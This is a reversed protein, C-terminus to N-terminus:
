LIRVIFSILWLFRVVISGLPGPTKPAKPTKRSLVMRAAQLAVFVEGGRFGPGKLGLAGFKLSVLLSGKSRPGRIRFFGIYLEEIGRIDYSRYLGM